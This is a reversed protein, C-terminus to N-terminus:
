SDPPNTLRLALSLKSELHLVLTIFIKTLQPGNVSKMLKNQSVGPIHRLHDVYFVPLLGDVFQLVGGISGMQSDAGIFVRHVDVTHHLPVFFHALADAGVAEDCVHVPGRVTFVKLGVVAAASPEEVPHWTLAARDM